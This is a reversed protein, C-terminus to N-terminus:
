TVGQDKDKTKVFCQNLLTICETLKTAKRRPCLARHSGLSGVPSSPCLIRVQTDELPDRLPPFGSRMSLAWELNGSGHVRYGLIM